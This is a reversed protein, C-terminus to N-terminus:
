TRLNHGRINEVDVRADTYNQYSFYESKSYGGIAIGAPPRSLIWRQQAAEAVAAATRASAPTVTSVAVALAATAKETTVGTAAPATAVQSFTPGNGSSNWQVQFRM